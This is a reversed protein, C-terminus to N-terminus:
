EQKSRKKEGSREVERRILDYVLQQITTERHAVLIRLQKHTEEDLRVHVMPGRYGSDSSRAM